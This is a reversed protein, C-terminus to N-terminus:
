RPELRTPQNAEARPSADWIRVADGACALCNGDASFAAARVTRYGAPLELVSQGTRLEWVKIVAPKQVGLGFSGTGAVVRQSDPSFALCTVGETLGRLTFVQHGTELEWVMVATPQGPEHVGAALWRGDPSITVVGARGDGVKLSQVDRGTGVEWLTVQQGTSAAVRDGSPTFAFGGTPLNATRLSAVPRGTTLDWLRIWDKEAIGSVALLRNDPSFAVGRADFGDETLDLVPEGTTTDWVKVAYDLDPTGATGATGALWRGDPSFAMAAAPGHLRDVEQGSAADRIRITGDSWGTANRQADPSFTVSVAQELMQVEPNRRADWLKVTRDGGGSALRQGDPSFAVSWVGALHGKLAFIERGTSPDWVRVTRDHGGTALRKGDPSFAVSTVGGAHGWLSLVEDGTKADWVKVGYAGASALRSGDPSFVLGSVFGTRSKVSLAERGAIVDWVKVFEDQGGSALQKGDPTFALANVSFKHGPLTVLLRGSAVDWVNVQAEGQALAYGAALRDGDPSFALAYVSKTGSGPGVPLTLAQRDASLDWVEVGGDGLGRALLRGKDGVAVASGYGPEQPFSRVVRGTATDWVTVDGTLPKRTKEDMRNGEGAVVLLRGDPSYAVKRVQTPHRLMPPEDDALRRLYRWEFGRLDAQGPRPRTEDLLERVRGVNGDRWAQQAAQIRAVYLHLWAQEKQADATRRQEEENARAKERAEAEALALREQRRAEVMGLTTGVVGGLLALLVLSAAAVPGRNKRALKRLRYWTSPPCAEVPEDNLHREVDRALGSASEYRRTRDKELARMVIWDLEGRVLRGLRKPDSKRQASITRQAEAGM